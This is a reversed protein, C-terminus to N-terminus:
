NNCHVVPLDDSYLYDFELGNEIQKIRNGQADYVYQIDKGNGSFRTLQKGREWEFTYGNFTLPNGVFDYTIANGDISRVCPVTGQASHGVM